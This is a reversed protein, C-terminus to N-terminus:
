SSKLKAISQELDDGLKEIKLSLKMNNAKLELNEEDKSQREKRLRAVEVQLRELENSLYNYGGDERAPTQMVSNDRVALNVRLNENETKLKSIEDELRNNKQGLETNSKELIFVKANAENLQNITNQLQDVKRQLREIDERYYKLLSEDQKQDPAQM